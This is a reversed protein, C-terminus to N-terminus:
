LAQRFVRAFLRGGDFRMDAFSDFGQSFPAVMLGILNTSDDVYPAVRQFFDKAIPAELVNALKILIGDQNAVDEAFRAADMFDDTAVFMEVWDYAPALPMEIETIIGNTGYAHSVRALEEKAQEYRVKKYGAYLLGGPMIITIIADTRDLKKDAVRQLLAQKRQILQSRLARLQDMLVERDVDPFQVVLLNTSTAPILVQDAHATQLARHTDLIDLAVRGLQEAGLLGALGSDERLDRGVELPARHNETYLFLSDMGSLQKLM